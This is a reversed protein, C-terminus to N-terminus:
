SPSIPTTTAAAPTLKERRLPPANLDLRVTKQFVGGVGFVAVFVATKKYLYDFM